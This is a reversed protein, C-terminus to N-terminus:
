WHRVRPRRSSTRVIVSAITLARLPRGDGLADSVFDMSWRENPGAPVPLPVRPIAVLKKARRRRVTLGEEGYLRAVLKRNVTHGERRLLVHLRRVGWRPRQGALAVLREVTVEWTQARDHKATSAPYEAARVRRGM